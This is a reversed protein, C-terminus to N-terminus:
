ASATSTDGQAREQATRVAVGGATFGGDVFLTQGNVYGADDSCLFRVAKAVEDPEGYRALPITAYYDARMQQSHNAIAPETDVPGPGVANVNIGYPGLEVALQRTFHIIAAKSTGYAARAFGARVGSVSAINVIRGSRQDAMVRGAMQSCLFMSTLNVSLMRNWQELTIEFFPKLGGIGANNILIDIAGFEALTRDVTMAIERESSVDCAVVRITSANNSLQKAARTAANEDQDAIVIHAGCEVLSQTIAFGIGKAGGTVIATKGALSM